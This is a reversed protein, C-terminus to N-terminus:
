LGVKDITLSGAFTTTKDTYQAGVTVIAIEFSHANELSLTVTGGLETVNTLVGGRMYVTGMRYQREATPRSTPNTLSGDYYIVRLALQIRPTGGTAEISCGVGVNITFIGSENCRFFSGIKDSTSSTHDIGNANTTNDFTLYHVTGIDGTISQGSNITFVGVDIKSSNVTGQFDIAGVGSGFTIKNVVLNTTSGIIPQKGSLTNALGDVSSQSLPASATIEPHKGDLQGQISSTADVYAFTTTTIDSVRIKGNGNSELVRNSTLNASTVTTAAGTIEDQKDGGLGTLQTQVNSSVGSLLALEALTVVSSDIEGSSNTVVARSPQTNGGIYNVLEKRTDLSKITSGLWAM